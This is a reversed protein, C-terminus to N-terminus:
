RRLSLWGGAAGLAVAAMGFLLSLPVTFERYERILVAVGFM